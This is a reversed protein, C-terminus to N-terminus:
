FGDKTNGMASLTGQTDLRVDVTQEEDIKYTRM